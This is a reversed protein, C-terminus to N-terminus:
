EKADGPRRTLKLARQDLCNGIDILPVEGRAAAVLAFYIVDATEHIVDDLDAADALEKAEEILKSRLLSPDVILRRTYSGPPANQVRELLRRSLAPLGCSPGWEGVSPDDIKVRMRLSQRNEAM